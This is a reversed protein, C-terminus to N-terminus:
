APRKSRRGRYGRFPRGVKKVVLAGTTGAGFLYFAIADKRATGSPVLVSLGTLGSCTYQQGAINTILFAGSIPKRNVDYVRHFRLYDGIAAGPLVQSLNVVGATIALVKASQQSLDRGVFGFGGTQLNLLFGAMYSTFAVSPDWEGSTIVEYPLGRIVGRSSNPAGVAPFSYELGAQAVDLTYAPSGPLNLKGASAGGPQLRNGLSTYQQVRYGVISAARPLMSARFQSVVNFADTGPTIFTSWVGESWGGSRDSAVTPRAADTTFDFLWSTRYLAM